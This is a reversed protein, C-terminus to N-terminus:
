AEEEQADSKGADPKGADPKGADSKGADSKGADPKGADPQQECKSCCCIQVLKILEETESRVTALAHHCAKLTAKCESCCSSQAAQLQEETNHVAVRLAACRSDLKARCKPPYCSQAAELLKRADALLEAITEKCSDPKGDCKSCCSKALKLLKSAETIAKSLAALSNRHERREADLKQTEIFCLRGDIFNDVRTHFERYRRKALILMFAASVIPLWAYPTSHPWWRCLLVLGLLLLAPFLSAAIQAYRHYRRVFSDYDEQTIVNKGILYLPDRGPPRAPVRPPIQLLLKNVPNLVIGILSGFVGILLIINFLGGFAVPLQGSQRDRLATIDEDLSELRGVYTKTEAQAHAVASQTEEVRGTISTIEAQQTQFKSLAEARLDHRSAWRKLYTDRFNDRLATANQLNAEVAEHRRTELLLRRRAQRLDREVGHRSQQLIDMQQQLVYRPSLSHLLTQAPTKSPEALVLLLSAAVIAGAPTISGVTNLEFLRKALELIRGM